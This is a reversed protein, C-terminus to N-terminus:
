RHKLDDDRADYGLVFGVIIGTVGFLGAGLTFGILAGM